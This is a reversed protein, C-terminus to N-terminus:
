LKANIFLNYKLEALVWDNQNDIDQAYIDQIEISYTNDTRLNKNTFLKEVEFTYFMGADFYAKQFDQTRINSNKFDFNEVKNAENLFIARQIPNSYAVSPFVCDCTNHELIKFSEILLNSTIFPACSYICTAQSFNIGKSKYYELVELLVDVTTAFDDSNEISRYFPVTAGYELAIQAIKDDDTSVM